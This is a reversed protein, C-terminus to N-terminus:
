LKILQMIQGYKLWDIAKEYDQETDFELWGGNNLVASVKQKKDILFQLLDTMYAKRISKGTNNWNDSAVDREHDILEIVKKITKGKFKLLGIYRADIQSILPDSFGIRVIDYDNKIQLGELDFNLTGYRMIWYKQWDKDVAVSVEEDSELVKRLLSEEYIIDSYSVIIDEIYEERAMYLTEVMNTTEYNPNVFYKINPFNIKDAEYGKVIIINNIGCKKFLDVQYEILTKNNFSLMGKPLNETYKKLRTGKGAALIVVIM